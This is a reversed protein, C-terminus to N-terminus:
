REYVYRIELNDRKPKDSLKKLLSHVLELEEPDVIEFDDNMEGISMLDDICDFLVSRLFSKEEKNIYIRM